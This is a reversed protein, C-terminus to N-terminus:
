NETINKVLEIACEYCTHPVYFRTSELLPGAKLALGLGMRGETTFPIEAQKLLDSLMGSYPYKTDTLLIWDKTIEM